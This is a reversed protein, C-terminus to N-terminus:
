GEHHAGCNPCHEHRGFLFVTSCYRCRVRRYEPIAADGPKVKSAEGQDILEATRACVDILKSLAALPDRNNVIHSHMEDEDNVLKVKVLKDELTFSEVPTESMARILGSSVDEGLTELFSYAAALDDNEGEVYIGKELFVLSGSNDIDEWDSATDARRPIANMDRRINVWPGFGKDCKMEIRFDDGECVGIGKSIIVRCPRGNVRFTLQFDHGAGKLRANINHGCPFM